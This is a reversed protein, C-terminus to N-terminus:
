EDLLEKVTNELYGDSGFFTSRLIGKRDVLISSPTGRLAYEEFTAASYAKQRLIQRVREVLTQRDKESYSRFDPVNAEVFDM